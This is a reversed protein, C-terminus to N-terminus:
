RRTLGPPLAAEGPWSALPWCMGLTTPEGDAYFSTGHGGLYDSALIWSATDAASGPVRRTVLWRNPVHPFTVAGSQPDATGGATLADPLAWRLVVGTLRGTNGDPDLPLPTAGQFAVAQQQFFRVLRYNPAIWSWGLNYSANTLVLADAAVPVLLAPGGWLTGPGAPPSATV